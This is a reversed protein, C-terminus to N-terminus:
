GSTWRVESIASNCVSGGVFMFALLLLGSIENGLSIASRATPTRFGSPLGVNWPM